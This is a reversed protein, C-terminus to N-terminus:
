APDKASFCFLSIEPLHCLDFGVGQSLVILSTLPPPLCPLLALSLIFSFTCLYLNLSPRSLLALQRGHSLRPRPSSLRPEDPLPSTLGAIKMVEALTLSLRVDKVLRMKWRLLGSPKLIANSAASLFPLKAANLALSIFLGAAFFLSLSM